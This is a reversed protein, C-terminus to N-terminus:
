VAEVEQKNYLEKQQTWMEFYYGRSKVLEYHTGIEKIEGEKMVIIKDVNAAIGIRHTIIILTKDDSVEILNKLLDLESNPDIASTPEDLVVLSAEKFLARALAIRQWQGGSLNISEDTLYGLETALGKEPNLINSVGFLKIVNNIKEDNNIESVNSMAINHRIDLEFKTFDQFIVSTKRWLSHLDIDKIEKGNYFVNDSQESQYLGLIIKILTTKGSANDGVIAIKEGKNIMLNIHNLANKDRNPYKFSLNRVEISDIESIEDRTSDNENIENSLMENAFKLYSTNEYFKGCVNFLSLVNSEILPAAMTIAMYDGITLNGKYIYYICFLSLSLKCGASLIKSITIYNITKKELNFQLEFAHRKKKIWLKKLFEFSQNIMLEKHVSFNNLMQFLYGHTRHSTQLINTVEVRNRITRLELLGRLMCLILLGVIVLINLKHLLAISLSISILVSVLTLFSQYNSEIKSLAFENYNAKGHFSPNEKEVMDMGYFYDLLRNNQRISFKETFSLNHKVQIQTFITILLEISIIMLLLQVVDMLKFSMTSLNNILKSGLYISANLQIPTVILLMLNLLFYKKDVKWVEKFSFVFLNFGKLFAKM